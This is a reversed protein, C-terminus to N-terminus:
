DQWGYSIKGVFQVQQQEIPKGIARDMLTNFAQTSPDKSFLFYTSGEAANPANLAQVIEDPDTLRRFQGTDPDRLMFHNIGKASHIQAMTLPQLHRLVLDRLVEEGKQRTITKATVHGAPMGGKHLRGLKDRKQHKQDPVVLATSM